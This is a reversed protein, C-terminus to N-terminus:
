TTALRAVEVRASATTGSTTAIAASSRRAAWGAAAQINHQESVGASSYSLAVPPTLGGPGSPVDLPISTTLGGANLDVNFPDPHGFTAVPSDTDFSMLTSPGSMTYTTTLARQAPDWAASQSSYPGLGPLTDSVTAGSRTDPTNASTPVSSVGVPPSSNFVVFAHGLDLASAATPLHMKLTIPKRLGQNVLVGNGDVVQVLYGGFSVLGSGGASSGSAPAVQRIALQLAGGAAAQDAPTIAGAPADVEFRKDQGLFTAAADPHLPLLGQPMTIGTTPSMPAPTDTARKVTPLTHPPQHHVSTANAHPDFPRPKTQATSASLGHAAATPFLTGANQALPGLIGSAM